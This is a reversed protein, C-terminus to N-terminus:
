SLATKLEAVLSKASTVLEVMNARFDDLSECSEANELADRIQRVIDAVDSNNLEDQLEETTRTTKKTRTAREEAEEITLVSGHTSVARTPGQWTAIPGLWENATKTAAELSDARKSIKSKGDSSRVYVNYKETM